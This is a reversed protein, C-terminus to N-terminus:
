PRWLFGLNSQLGVFDHSLKETHVRYFGRRNSLIIDVRTKKREKIIAVCGSSLIDDHVINKIIITQQTM